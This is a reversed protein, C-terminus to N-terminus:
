ARQLSVVVVTGTPDNNEIHVSGGYTDVLSDVLYLGLGSGASDIGKEGHGFVAEKRSDPIGPGNDAIRITVTDTTSELTVTIRVEDKDNHYVANNLINTFVSSLLSTARVRLNEDPKAYEIEVDGPRPEFRSRIQEVERTLTTELPIAELEPDSAGILKSLDRVSETLDKAHNAAEIIRQYADQAEPDLHEELMDAWGLVVAMDNRIDHRVVQNLVNLRDRETELQWKAQERESVDRQFGVYHTLSGTPDYLPAITLENWFSEGDKTYNKLVVTTPREEEIAAALETVPEDDTDTGQLFRCDQGVADEWGYGTMEAFAENLYILPNDGEGTTTTAITIGIPAEDVVRSKLEESMGQASQEERHAEIVTEKSNAPSRIRFTVTQDTDVQQLCGSVNTQDRHKDIIELLRASVAGKERDLAQLYSEGNEISPLGFEESIQVWGDTQHCVIGDNDVILMGVFTSQSSAM